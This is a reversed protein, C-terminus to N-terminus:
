FKFIYGEEPRSIAQEIERDETPYKSNYEKYLAKIKTSDSIITVKNGDIKMAITSEFYLERDYKYPPYEFMVVLSDTNPCGGIFNAVDFLLDYFNPYKSAYVNWDPRGNTCPIERFCYFQADKKNCGGDCTGRVCVLPYKYLFEYQVLSDIEVVINLYPELEKYPIFCPKDLWSNDEIYPIHCEIDSNNVEKKDNFFDPKNRCVMFIFLGESDVSWYDYQKKYELMDKVRDIKFCLDLLTM